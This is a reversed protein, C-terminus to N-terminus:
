NMRNLEMITLKFPSKGEQEWKGGILFNNTVGSNVSEEAMGFNILLLFLASLVSVRVRATM